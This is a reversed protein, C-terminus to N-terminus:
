GRSWTHDPRCENARPAPRRRPLELDPEFGLTEAAERREKSLKDRAERRQAAIRYAHDAAHEQNRATRRRM